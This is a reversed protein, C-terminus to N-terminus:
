KTGFYQLGLMTLDDFQPADGVFEDVAQKVHSLVDKPSANPDRNLAEVLRENGFLENDANTAEAVGDTYVFLSDGPHLEFEHERFRIGEMTAVAPSHRYEILEYLGDKRRLAPHEHGANAAMGKGTSIELIGLWVTVFLEAENGECLQENTSMLVKAPSLEGLQAHNKILTKAIVMFLAAPVGKGSVDAMVMALHDDDILFFDYFDGGVEKAPTMSAHLIYAPHDTRSGFNTPLMSAQIDTAVSLEGAIRQERATVEKLDAIYKQLSDAMSNFSDALSGIEDDTTVDTRQNLDSSIKKVDGELQKLPNTIRKSARGTLMTVFILIIASLVLAIQIVTLIGQIVANVVQSTNEDINDRIAVAPKIIESVPSLICLKWGTDGITSYAIYEAGDDEGTSIVGENSGLIEEGAAALEKDSGDFISGMDEATPDIDRGAIYGGEGDILIARSPVVIGDNVMSENLEKILIDMAVCGRVTGNPDKIPAVCTITLGRGYGDQYASTYGYDSAHTGLDYWESSRYEYYSEGQEEGSDSYVDYSILLGDDMGMYVTSINDNNRVIPEFVDIMNGFLGSETRLDDYAIDESAIARQMAWIGGNEKLPRDVEKDPYSGSNELLASAYSAAYMTADSYAELKQEALLTKDHAQTSISDELQAKLSGSSIESAEEGLRRSNSVSTSRIYAIAGLCVATSVVLTIMSFTLTNFIMKKAVSSRTTVVGNEDVTEVDEIDDYGLKAMVTEDIMLTAVILLLGGILQFLTAREYDMDLLRCLLPNTLLTIIIESSFILSAKLASVYQQCSIQLLGYVARIFVGIFIAGLWFSRDKPLSLTTLGMSSEVVWGVFSFVICFAIQSLTLKVSDEGEGMVAVSVVYGAFFIDAIILYLIKPSSFLTTTDAKLMLLLAVIAIVTAISSFFNVKKRLLLLLPTVFIFYLSLVSSTIVADLGKSGMITFFNFGMLELAFIFGKKLTDRSIGKIKKFQAVGLIVLGILNTVFMFSFTSVSEPVGRLFVYQIAALVTIFILGITAMDSKTRM